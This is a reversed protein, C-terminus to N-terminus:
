SLEAYLNRYVVLKICLAAINVDIPHLYQNVNIKPVVVGDVGSRIKLNLESERRILNPPAVQCSLSIIFSSFHAM